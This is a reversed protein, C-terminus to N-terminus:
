RACTSELRTILTFLVVPVFPKLLDSPTVIGCVRNEKVVLHYRLRRGLPYRFVGTSASVFM